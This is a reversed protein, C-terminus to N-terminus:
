RSVCWQSRWWTWAVEPTPSMAEYRQDNLTQLDELVPRIASLPRPPHTVGANWLLSLPGPGALTDGGGATDTGADDGAPEAQPARQDGYRSVLYNLIRIRIKWLWVPGQPQM